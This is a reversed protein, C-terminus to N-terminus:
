SSLINISNPIFTINTKWKEFNSLQNTKSNEVIELKMFRLFTKFFFFSWQDKYPMEFLGTIKLIYNVGNVFNM